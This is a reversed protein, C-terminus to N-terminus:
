HRHRCLPVFRDKAPDYWIAAEPGLGVKIAKAAFTAKSGLKVSAACHVFPQEVLKPIGEVFV